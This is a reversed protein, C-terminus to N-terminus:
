EYMKINGDIIKNQINKLVNMCFDHIWNPSGIVRDKIKGATEIALKKQRDSIIGENYAQEMEDRDLEMVDNSTSVLLDLFIDNYYYVGDDDIGQGDCMDIYWIVPEMKDNMYMTIVYDENDQSVVLWKYGDEAVTIKMGFADWVQPEKVKEINILAVRINEEESQYIKKKQISRNWEDFTFRVHKIYLKKEM